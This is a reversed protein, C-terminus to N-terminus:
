KLIVMPKTFLRDDAKLTCLYVGSAVERSYDDKGNWILSHYGATKYENVLTKVKQGISNYVSITVYCNKPLQYAISTIPNFPNPYNQSLEYSQPLPSSPEVQEVGVEFEYYNRLMEDWYTDATFDLFGTSGDYRDDYQYEYPPYYISIGHSDPTYNGHWEAIVAADIANKVDNAASTVTPNINQAIINDAFDYLDYYHHQSHGYCETANLANYIKVAQMDNRLAEAFISIKAGSGTALDTLSIASLTWDNYRGYPTDYYDVIYTALQSATINSALEQLFTYEWGDGPELQESGICIDAYDRIQYSVEIMQMLCADMGFLDLKGISTSDIINSIAIKLEKTDISAGASCWDECIAKMAENGGKKQWGSGHDWLILAYKHAPYTNIGWIAFDELTGPYGTDLEHEWLPNVESLPISPSGISPNTDYSIDYINTNSLGYKDYLVIIKADEPEVNEMASEMENIDDLGADSLNNDAAMYILITWDYTIPKITIVHCSSEQCYWNNYHIVKNQPHWTDHICIWHDDPPGWGMACVSHCHYTPHWILVWHVPHEINIENIHIYLNRKVKL